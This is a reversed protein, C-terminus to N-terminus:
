WSSFGLIAIYKSNKIKTIWIILVAAPYLVSRSLFFLHVWSRLFLYQHLLLWINSAFSKSLVHINWILLVFNNRIIYLISIFFNRGVSNCIKLHFILYLKQFHFHLQTFVNKWQLEPIKSTSNIHVSSSQWTCDFCLYM